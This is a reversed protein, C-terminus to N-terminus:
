DIKLSTRIVKPFPDTQIFYFNEQSDILNLERGEPTEIRKLLQGETNFFELFIQIDYKKKDKKDVLRLSNILYKKDVVFCPGSCDSPGVSVRMSGKINTVKIDPPKLKLNRKIKSMLNGELDYTRIEYQDPLSFYIKNGILQIGGGGISVGGTPPGEPGYRYEDPFKKIFEGDTTYYEAAVGPRGRVFLSVLIRSDPLFYFNQWMKDLRVTRLYEGQKSFFHVRRGDGVVVEEESSFSVNRPYQFDGPGQGKQGAKCIFQGQKDFKVIRHNGADLVYINQESDVALDGLRYFMLYDAGQEQGLSLSEEFSIDKGDEGEWLGPGRNEVIKVDGQTYIEGEWKDKACNVCFLVLVFMILVKLLPREM